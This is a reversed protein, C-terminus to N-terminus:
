CGTAPARHCSVGHIGSLTRGNVAARNEMRKEPAIPCPAPRQGGPRPRRDQARENKNIISRARQRTRNGKRKKEKKKMGAPTPHPRISRPTKTEHLGPRRHLSYWYPPLSSGDSKDPGWLLDGPSLLPVTATFCGAGNM